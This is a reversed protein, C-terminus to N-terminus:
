SGAPFAGTTGRGSIRAPDHGSITAEDALGPWVAIDISALLRRKWLRLPALLPVRARGRLLLISACACECAADESRVTRGVAARARGVARAEGSLCARWPAAWTLLLSAVERQHQARPLRGQTRIPPMRRRLNKSCETECDRGRSLRLVGVIGDDERSSSWRIAGFDPWKLDM